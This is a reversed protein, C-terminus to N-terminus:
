ARATEEIQGFAEKPAEETTEPTLLNGILEREVTHGIEVDEQEGESLM